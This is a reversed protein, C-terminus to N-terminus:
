LTLQLQIRALHRARGFDDGFTAQWDAQLKYAHSREVYWNFGAALENGQSAVQDRLAPDTGEMAFLQGWRGVLELPAAVMVGLQAFYGYGSRSWEMRANGAETYAHNPESARRWLFEGLLSVGRWKFHLDAAAHLYDFPGHALTPGLTSRSRVTGQNWAGAVGVALRPSARRDIDGEVNDDFGGLPSVQLRAVYLFGAEGGARNRGEGSFLGLAYQLRGGLGLFDRSSLEVGADRDLNLEGVVLQRDTFQLAAERITRARDFPVFFQGVRLQADRFRAFQAWVDFLPSPQGAEYDAPALALQLYYRVDPSFAHGSVILRLTRVSLDTQAPGEPPATVTGRLQVRSSVTLSISPDRLTVTVGSGPRGEFTVPQPPREPAAAPTQARLASTALVAALAAAPLAPRM